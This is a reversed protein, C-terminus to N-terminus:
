FFLGWWAEDKPFYPCLTTVCLVVQIGVAQIFGVVSCILFIPFLNMQSLFCESQLMWGHKGESDVNKLFYVTKNLQVLNSQLLVDM